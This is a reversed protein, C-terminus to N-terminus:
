LVHGAGPVPGRGKPQRQGGGWLPHNEVCVRKFERGEELTGVRGGEAGAVLLQWAGPEGEVTSSFPAYGHKERFFDAHVYSGPGVEAEEQEHTFRMARSVFAM